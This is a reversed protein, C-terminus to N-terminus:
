VGASLISNDPRASRSESLLNLARILGLVSDRVQEGTVFGDCLLEVAFIRHADLIAVPDSLAGSQYQWFVQRVDDRLYEAGDFSM